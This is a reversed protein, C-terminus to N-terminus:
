KTVMQRSRPAVANPAAPSIVFSLWANWGDPRNQADFEKYAKLNLYGQWTGVPFLFTLQPGIGIVQSRFCGVRDGSGSDCGIEKYVYGVVSVSFQKSLFQSAAWDLHWDVGNQYNTSPNTFNYTLGTVASFEHGTWGSFRM